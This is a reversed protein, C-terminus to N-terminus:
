EACKYYGRYGARLRSGVEFIVDTEQQRAVARGTGERDANITLRIQDDTLVLDGSTPASKLIVLHGNLKVVGVGAGDTPIQWALVPRGESTYRFECRAGAGLAKGIEADNMPAPDLTPIHAGALAEGAPVIRAVEPAHIATLDDDPAQSNGCGALVGLATVIAWRRWGPQSSLFRM